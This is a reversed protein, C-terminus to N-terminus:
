SLLKCPAFYIAGHLAGQNSPLITCARWHGSVAGTPTLRHVTSFKTLCSRQKTVGLVLTTGTADRMHNFAARTPQWFFFCWTTSAGM